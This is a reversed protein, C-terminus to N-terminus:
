KGGALQILMRVYIKTAMRLKAGVGIAPYEKLARRAVFAPLVISEMRNLCRVIKMGASPNGDVSMRDRAFATATGEIFGLVLFAHTLHKFDFSLDLSQRHDSRLLRLSGAQKRMAFGPGGARVRMAFAFGDPLQAVEDQIVPDVASSAQLLRGVLWMMLRVYVKQLRYGFSLGGSTAAMRPGAKEHQNM